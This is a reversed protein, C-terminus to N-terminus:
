LLQYIKKAYWQHTLPGPHKGDYALDLYTTEISDGYYDRIHYYNKLSIFYPLHDQHVFIGVLFLKAGIYNCFNIVQHVSTLSHYISNELHSLMDINVINNFEPNMQYYGPNVNHLKQDKFFSFRDLSTLGFVVIDDKQINSRLIQDAAWSISAGGKALFSVELNLKNALLQGYRKDKELFDGATISCGAVWLQPETTKRTDELQTMQNIISTPILHDIGLVIKSNKLVLLHFETYHKMLSTNNNKLDSWMNPPAYILRDACDLLEVFQRRSTFDGISIYYTSDSEINCNKETILKADPSYKSAEQSLYSTVDGVLFTIM